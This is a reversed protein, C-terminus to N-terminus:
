SNAAKWESFSMITASQISQDNHQKPLNRLYTRYGRYDTKEASTLPSDSLQTFDTSKLAKDRKERFIAWAIEAKTKDGSGDPLPYKDKIELRRKQLSELDDDLLANICESLKPYEALRKGIAQKKQWELDNTLDIEEIVYDAPLHHRKHSFEGYEDLVDTSGLSRALEEPSCDEERKYREPMGWSNKRIQNQKWESAQPEEMDVQYQRGNIENTITIRKM